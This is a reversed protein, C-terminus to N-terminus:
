RGGGEPYQAAAERLRQAVQRALAVPSAVRVQPGHRLIDMALETADAYPLRMELSGDTLTKLTQRPHWEELAVWQAAEPSFVLTAWQIAKGSFIGYGGDLEAEVNKLAVDKARSELAKASRVADLAFRRLGDSQHCWADLYWTNRYHILRQPSVERQSETQKARTFYVIDLRKRKLLASGVAEFWRSPVPRRAPNVIKVRKMLERSESSTTGLMGNLKDLLPQLHRGLVGGADLGDILQHMTLLAHIESESFWVGPLQHAPATGSAGGEFKYLNDFRDYVIPADMRDRLYQLDRKLTARSVELEDMLTEFNVGGRSKILLEIRYFRETRNM